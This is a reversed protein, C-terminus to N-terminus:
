RLAAPIDQGPGSGERRSGGKGEVSGGGVGAEPWPFARRASLVQSIERGRLYSWAGTDTGGGTPVKRRGSTRDTFSATSHFPPHTKSSRRSPFIWKKLGSEPTTLLRALSPSPGPSSLSGTASATSSEM